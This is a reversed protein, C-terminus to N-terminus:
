SAKGDAGEVEGGGVADGQVGKAGAEGFVDRWVEWGEVTRSPYRDGWEGKAAMRGKDEVSFEVERGQVVAKEVERYKYYVDEQVGPIRRDATATLLGVLTKVGLVDQINDGLRPLINNLLSTLAKSGRRLADFLTGGPAYALVATYIDGSGTTSPQATALRQTVEKIKDDLKLIIPTSSSSDVAAIGQLIWRLVCDALVHNPQITRSLLDPLFGLAGELWNGPQQRIFRFTQRGLDYHTGPFWKQQIITKPLNPPNDNTNTGDLHSASGYPIKSHSSKADGDKVNIEELDKGVVLCPQFFWFRDHLAPAHYVHQVVSSVRQDFFEFTRWEIGIGANIRPIGLAGVTDICGMFRIPSEVQWVKKSNRKLRKSENSKPRDMPLKSRYTRHVDYCLRSIQADTYIPDRKIIGCNNIMGAVSRITFAGRSFGFLWIEHDQTYNEVIFKYVNICDDGISSATAGDWIYELFTRNLGVGEQYGAVVDPKGNSTSKNHPDIRHVASPNKLPDETFEVKGVLNALM